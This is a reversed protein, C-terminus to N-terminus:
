EHLKGFCFQLAKVGMNRYLCIATSVPFPINLLFKKGYSWSSEEM